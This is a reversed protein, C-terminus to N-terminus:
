CQMKWSSCIEFSNLHSSGNPRCASLWFRRRLEGNGYEDFATEIDISNKYCEAHSGCLKLYCIRVGTVRWVQRKKPMGLCCQLHFLYELPIAVVSYHRFLLTWTPM